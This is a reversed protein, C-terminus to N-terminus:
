GRHIGPGDVAPLTAEEALEVRGCVPCEWGAPVDRMVTDCDPCSQGVDDLPDM